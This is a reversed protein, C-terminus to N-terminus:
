LSTVLLRVFQSDSAYLGQLRENEALAKDLYHDHLIVLAAVEYAAMRNAPLNPIRELRIPKNSSPGQRPTGKKQRREKKPDRLTGAKIKRSGKPKRTRM